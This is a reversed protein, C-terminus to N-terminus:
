IERYPSFQSKLNIEMPNVTGASGLVDRVTIAIDDPQIMKDSILHDGRVMETDTLGPNICCVMINDERINEFLCKSYALLAHKSPCYMEGNKFIFTGALSGINIIAGEKQERMLGISHTCLHYVARFNIDLTNDWEALNCSYPDKTKSGTGASNILINLKGFRSIVQDVISKLNEIKSLDYM